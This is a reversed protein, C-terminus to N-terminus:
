QRRERVRVKATKGWIWVKNEFKPFVGETWKRRIDVKLAENGRKLRWWRREDVGDDRTCGYSKTARRWSRLELLTAVDGGPGEGGGRCPTTAAVAM